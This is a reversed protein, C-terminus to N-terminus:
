ALLVAKLRPSMEESLSKPFTATILTTQKEDGLALTWKEFEVGAAKQLFNILMGPRGDVEITEKGIFEMGRGKMYEPTFGETVKSYPGQMRILMVSAQRERQGFGDFSTDKEFGTPKRLRIGV